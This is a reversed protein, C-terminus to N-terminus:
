EALVLPHDVDRSHCNLHPPVAVALPMADTPVRLVALDIPATLSTVDLLPKPLTADAPPTLPTVCALLALLVAANVKSLQLRLPLVVSSLPPPANDVSALSLHANPDPLLPAEATLPDVSNHPPLATVERHPPVVPKVSPFLLLLLNALLLLLLRVVALQAHRQAVTLCAEEMM